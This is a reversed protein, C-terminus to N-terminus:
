EGQDRRETRVFKCFRRSEKPQDPTKHKSTAKGDDGKELIGAKKLGDGAATEDFGAAIEECFTGSFVLWFPVGARDLKRGGSVFFGRV